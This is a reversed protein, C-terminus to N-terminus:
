SENARHDCYQQLAAAIVIETTAGTGAKIADLNAKTEPSAYFCIRSHGADIMRRRYDAVRERAPKAQSKMMSEVEHEDWQGHQGILEPHEAAIRDLENLARRIRPLDIPRSTM